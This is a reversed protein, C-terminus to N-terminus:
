ARPEHKLLIPIEPLDIKFVPLIVYEIHVRNIVQGLVEWARQGRVKLKLDGNANLTRRGSGNDLKNNRAVELETGRGQDINM